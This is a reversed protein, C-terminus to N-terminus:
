SLEAWKHVLPPLVVFVVQGFDRGKLVVKIRQLFSPTKATKWSIKWKLSQEFTHLLRSRTAFSKQVKM